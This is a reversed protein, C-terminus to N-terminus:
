GRTRDPDQEERAVPHRWYLLMMLVRVAVIAILAYLIARDKSYAGEDAWKNLLLLAASLAIAYYVMFQLLPLLLTIKRYPKGLFESKMAIYVWLAYFGLLIFPMGAVPVEYSIVKRVDGYLMFPTFLMMLSLAIMVPHYVVAFVWKM